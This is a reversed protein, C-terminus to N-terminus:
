EPARGAPGEAARGVRVRAPRVVRDGARWGTRVEDVVAGDAAPDAVPVLDVAEHLVPDFPRGRAEIRTLGLGEIRKHLDATILGVGHALASVSGGGAALARELDDVAELLVRAIEGREAQLQRERDRELRRKFAERDNIVEALARSLEEIRRAQDSPVQPERSETDASLGEGDSM